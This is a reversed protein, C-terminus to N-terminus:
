EITTHVIDHRNNENRTRSVELLQILFHLVLVSYIWHYVHKNEREFRVHKVNNMDRNLLADVEVVFRFDEFLM